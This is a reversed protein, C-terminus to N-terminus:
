WAAVRIRRQGQNCGQKGPTENRALCHVKIRVKSNFRSRNLSQMSSLESGLLMGVRHVGGWEMGWCTQFYSVPHGEERTKYHIDPKGYSCSCWARGVLCWPHDSGLVAGAMSPGPHTEWYLVWIGLGVILQEKIPLFRALDPWTAAPLRYSWIWLIHKRAEM